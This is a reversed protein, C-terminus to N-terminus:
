RNVKAHTASRMLKSIRIVESTVFAPDSMDVCVMPTGKLMQKLALSAEVRGRVVEQADAADRARDKARTYIDIPNLYCFLIVWIEGDSERHIQEWAQFLEIQEQSRPWGDFIRSGEVIRNFITTNIKENFKISLDHTKISEEVEEEKLKRYIEGTSTYRLEARACVGTIMTTKGSLPLGVVFLRDIKELTELNM